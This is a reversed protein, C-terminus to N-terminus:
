LRRKRRIYDQAQDIERQKAPTWDAPKYLPAAIYLLVAGVLILGLRTLGTHGNLPNGLAADLEPLWLQGIILMWAPVGAGFTHAPGKWFLRWGLPGCLPSGGRSQRQWRIEM